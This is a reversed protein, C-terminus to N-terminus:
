TKVRLDNQIQIKQNLQNLNYNIIFFIFKNM